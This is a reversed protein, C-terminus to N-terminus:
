FSVLSSFYQFKLYPNVTSTESDIQVSFKQQSLDVPESMAIGSIFSDNAALLDTRINNHSSKGLSLAGEEIIELKNRLEYSIYQSTSDNFSFKMNRINPPQELATSNHFNSVERGLQIYSASMSDSIAPIKASHNSLNSNM